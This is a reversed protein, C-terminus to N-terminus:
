GFKFIAGNKAIRIVLTRTLSIKLFPLALTDTIKYSISADVTPIKLKSKRYSDSNLPTISIPQALIRTSILCLSYLGLVAIKKILSKGKGGFLMM